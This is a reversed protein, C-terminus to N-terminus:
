LTLMPLVDGWRRFAGEVRARPIFELELECTTFDPDMDVQGPNPPVPLSKHPSAPHTM